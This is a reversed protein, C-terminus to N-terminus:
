KRISLQIEINELWPAEEELSAQLSRLLNNLRKAYGDTQPITVEATITVLPNVSRRQKVVEVIEGPQRAQEDQRQLLEAKRQQGPLASRAVSALPKFPPLPKKM